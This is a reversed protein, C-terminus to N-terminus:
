SEKKQETKLIKGASLPEDGIRQSYNEASPANRMDLVILFSM